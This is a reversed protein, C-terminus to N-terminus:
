KPRLRWFSPFRPLGNKTLGRYRYTVVAGIPPPNKRQANTFGTGISFERGDKARVRLSGLMGTFKGKGPKHGIVTAEADEHTKVKLLTGSRKGEYISEPERIMLGEGGAKVIRDREAILHARGQCRWQPVLQVQRSSSPLKTKLFATRQEFTGKIKPADFIMFHMRRWRDDPIQRRVTSLTEEFQRRGLWLEGDLALGTPLEALFYDPAVIPHGGRTWLSKGDWFGRVGDYKESIWWGAPDISEDWTKALLLKPPEAFLSSTCLLSLLLSIASKM